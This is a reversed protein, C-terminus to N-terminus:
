ECDKCFPKLSNTEKGCVACTLAPSMPKFDGIAELLEEVNGQEVDLHDAIKTLVSTMAANGEEICSLRSAKIIKYGQEQLHKHFRYAECWEQCFDKKGAQLDKLRSCEINKCYEYKPYEM